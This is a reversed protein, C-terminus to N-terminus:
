STLRYSYALPPIRIAIVIRQEIAVVVGPYEREVFAIAAAESPFRAIFYRPLVIYPGDSM